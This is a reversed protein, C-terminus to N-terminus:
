TLRGIPSRERLRSRALSQLISEGAVGYVESRWVAEVEAGRGHHGLEFDADRTATLRSDLRQAALGLLAELTIEHTPRCVSSSATCTSPARAM